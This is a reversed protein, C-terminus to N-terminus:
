ITPELLAPSKVTAQNKSYTVVGRDRPSQKCHITLECGCVDFAATIRLRDLDSYAEESVAHILTGGLQLCRSLEKALRLLELDSLGHLLVDILVNAISQSPLARFLETLSNSTPANLGLSRLYLQHTEVAGFICGDFEYQQALHLLQETEYSVFVWNSLKNGESQVYDQELLHQGVIESLCSHQSLDHAQAISAHMAALQTVEEDDGLAMSVAHTTTPSIVLLKRGIQDVRFELDEVMECCLRALRTVRENDAFSRISAEHVVSKLVHYLREPQAVRKRKAFPTEWTKSSDSRYRELEGFAEAGCLKVNKARGEDSDVLQELFALKTLEGSHLAASWSSESASDPDRGLVAHYAERVLEPVSDLSLMAALNPVLRPQDHLFRNLENTNNLGRLVAQTADQIAKPNVM